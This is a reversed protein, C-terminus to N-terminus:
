HCASSGSDTFTEGAVPLFDWEYSTPHLELRLVGFTTANKVVSGAHTGLISQHNRGGTGVIFERIGNANDVSGDPALPAFREYIHDHGNLAVDVGADYLMTYMPGMFVNDGQQGSSFRPHHWYALTCQNPHAALDAQLWQLQPDGNGCEVGRACNSNLAIFHWAGLDYSYWGKCNQTCPADLPSAASGYYTYYGPAGAPLNYCSNTPNQSTTYEHNGVVPRTISKVRGWTPDYNAMFDSLEGC